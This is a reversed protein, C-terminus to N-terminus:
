RLGKFFSLRINIALLIVGGHLADFPALPALPALPLGLVGLVGLLPPLAPLAGDEDAAPLFPSVVGFDLRFTRAAGFDEAFFPFRRNVLLSKTGSRGCPM